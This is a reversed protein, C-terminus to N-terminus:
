REGGGEALDSEKLSGTRDFRGWSGKAEVKSINALLTGVVGLERFEGQSPLGRSVVRSFICFFEGLRRSRREKKGAFLGFSLAIFLIAM